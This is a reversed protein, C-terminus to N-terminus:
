EDADAPLTAASKKKGVLTGAAIGKGVALLGAVIAAKWVDVGFGDSVIAIGAAAQIFTWGAREALDLLFKKTSSM